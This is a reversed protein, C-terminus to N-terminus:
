KMVVNPVFGANDANRNSYDSTFVTHAIKLQYEKCISKRISLFRDGISRGRYKRDVSLGFSTLYDTVGYHEFTDFNEYMLFVIDFM